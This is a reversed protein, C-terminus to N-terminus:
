SGRGRLFALSRVITNLRKAKKLTRPVKTQTSPPIKGKRGARLRCDCQHFIRGGKSAERVYKNNRPCCLQLYGSWNETFDLFLDARPKTQFRNEAQFTSTFSVSLLTCHMYTNSRAPFETVVCCIFAIDAPM